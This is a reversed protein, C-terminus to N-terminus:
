GKVGINVMMNENQSASSAPLNAANAARNAGPETNLAKPQVNAWHQSIVERLDAFRTGAPCELRMKRTPM